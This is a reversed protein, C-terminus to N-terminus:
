EGEERIEKYYNYQEETLVYIDLGTQVDANACCFEHCFDENCTDAFRDMLHKADAEILERETGFPYNALHTNKYVSAVEENEVVVTIDFLYYLM